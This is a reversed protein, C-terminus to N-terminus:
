GALYKDLFRVVRREYETPDAEVIDIHGANPVLYREKPEVAANFIREEHGLDILDDKEGHIVLLGRPAIKAADAAPSVASIPAGTEQDMFWLVVGISPFPPRGTLATLVPGAMDPVSSYTSESVVARLEPIRAASELAAAGGSSHGLIGIKEQNVESRIALYSLAGRVDNIELVGLTTATGESDGHDRTDILLTHYGNRSLIAARALMGARNGSRGHVLIVTSGDKAETQAPIFWAAIKLGDSSEFRVDEWNALGVQDPTIDPRSRQPHVWTLAQSRAIRVVYLGGGIVVLVAALVGILIAMKRSVKM